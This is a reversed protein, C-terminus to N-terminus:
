AKKEESTNQEEKKSSNKEENLLEDITTDSLSEFDQTLDIQQAVVHLVSPVFTHDQSM